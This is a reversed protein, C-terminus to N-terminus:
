PATLVEEGAVLHIDWDEEEVEIDAEVAEEEM